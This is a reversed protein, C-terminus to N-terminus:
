NKLSLIWDKLVPLIPAPQQHFAVPPMRFFDKRKLRQYLISRESDGPLLIKAGPLGLDGAILPGNIIGQNALPTQLRADFTGRSPGGPFHCSACNADLYSRVKHQLSATPHDPAALRETEAVFPVPKKASLWGLEQWRRLQDHNTGYDLQRTTLELVFGTVTASPDLCVEYGPSFWYRDEEDPHVTIESDVVLQADTGDANWRYAGAKFCADENAWYLHTELRAGSETTFHQIITTDPPFRWLGTASPQIESSEPVRLWLQTRVQARWRPLNLHFRHFNPHPLCDAVSEFCDTQSLTSPFADVPSTDGVQGDYPFRILSGSDAVHRKGDRWITGRNLVYLAGDPGNQIDVPGNLNKAFLYSQSPSEPDIHRVWHNMFDLFFYHNHYEEPYAKTGGQYFAGGTISRGIVPPYAHIPNTFRPDDSDGEALPWGYNAGREIINIEEWSSQGVDNEYLAGTLPHFALGYPNRIGTAWIARYKGDAQNVFPNDIPISGNPNLRLIKGLLSNLSQSPAGATQEGLAVYLKRDPGFAIPGGQHGHPVNGGLKTQDDGEFLIRESDPLARDGEVTFRSIRHHPYPDAPTHNIFIYPAQPFRPHLALGILGREWYDDVAVTLMPEPLLRGNKVVRIHGTQDLILIRGDPTFRFATAANINKLVTEVRFGVTPEAAQLGALFFLPILRLWTRLRSTFRRPIHNTIDGGVAFWSLPAQISSKSAM